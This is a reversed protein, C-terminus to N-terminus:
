KPICVFRTAEHQVKATKQWRLLHCCLL